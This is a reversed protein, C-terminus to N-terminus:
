AYVSRRAYLMKDLEDQMASRVAEARDMSVSLPIHTHADVQEWEIPPLVHARIKAPFQAFAGLLPGFLLSNVTIPAPGGPTPIVGLVPTTDETGCFVIPIVPVGARMATEVFGGRGFRQLRYRQNPPKVPGKAGEPFVLVLQEDERLLRLANDPHGPVMGARQVARSIFPLEFFGRHALGYVPRGHQRAVGMQVLKGDIPMMGAHNAVLLAGGRAPIHEEGSWEVRFYEDYLWDFLPESAPLSELSAGWRDVAGASM